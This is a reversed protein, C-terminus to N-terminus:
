IQAFLVNNELHVHQHLDGEFEELLAYLVQYTNCAEPPPTFDNSLARIRAMAQGAGEHEEELENLTAELEQKASKQDVATRLVAQYAPFLVQEEKELHEMLESLLGHFTTAIEVTEPHAQGHVKAVKAAYAAIQPGTKRVYTHHINRIYDMLFSPEWSAFDHMPVSASKQIAAVLAAQLVKPDVAKEACVTALDKKGGCCFDIGFEKFVTATRYDQAVIEGVTAPQEFITNM